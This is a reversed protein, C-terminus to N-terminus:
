INANPNNMYGNASRQMIILEKGKVIKKNTKNQNQKTITKKSSLYSSYKDETM